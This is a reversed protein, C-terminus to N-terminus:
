CLRKQVAAAVAAAKSQPLLRERRAEAGYGLPWKIEVLAFATAAAM